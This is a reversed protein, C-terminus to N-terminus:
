KGGVFTVLKDILEAKSKLKHGWIILTIFGYKKFFNIRDEPNEGRHWYDGYIEILQKRGNINVFDPCKGGLILQGDGVYKWEHPFLLDLLGMLQIELSTPCGIKRNSNYFAEFWRKRYDSNTRMLEQHKLSNQRRQEDSVFEWYGSEMRLRRLEEAKEKGRIEEYTKGALSGRSTGNRERTVWGKRGRCRLGSNPDAWAQKAKESIKLKAELTQQKGKMGGPRGKLSASMKAKCEESLHRGEWAGPHGQLATSIKARHEESQKKGLPWGM